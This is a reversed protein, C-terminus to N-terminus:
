VTDSFDYFCKKIQRLSVDDNLEFALCSIAISQYQMDDFHLQMEAFIRVFLISFHVSTRKDVAAVREYSTWVTSDVFM